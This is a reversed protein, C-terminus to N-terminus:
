ILNAFGLSSLRAKEEYDTMDLNHAVISVYGDAVARHDADASNRPDDVIDGVMMYVSEGEEVEPIFRIGRDLPTIGRKRFIDRDYPQFENVWHVLGQNCVKCGKIDDYPIAPFNVNYYVGCKHSDNKLLAEFIGPFLKLVASFDPDEGFDDLSVGISLVDAMAGEQAAGLTASYLAASASNSGHNIGSVVVDPKGDTLINDVAFKVCCAPTDDVYWWSEEESENLKKVAIPKYGLGVAMSMGSQHFKPAVVTVDGYKKMMQVLERLGKARYGDDNTVLIKM